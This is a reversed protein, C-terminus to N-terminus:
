QSVAYSYVCFLLCWKYQILIRKITRKNNKIIGRIKRIIIKRHHCIKIYLINLPTAQSIRQNELIRISKSYLLHKFRPQIYNCFPRTVGLAIFLPPIYGSCYYNFIIEWKTKFTYTKTKICLHKM